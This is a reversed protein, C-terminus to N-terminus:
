TKWATQATLGDAADDGGTGDVYFTRLPAPPAPAAYDGCAANILGASAGADSGGADPVGADAGNGDARGSDSSGADVANSADSRAGGDGLNVTGSCGGAAFVLTLFTLRAVEVACRSSPMELTDTRLKM